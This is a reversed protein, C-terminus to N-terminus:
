LYVYYTYHELFVYYTDNTLECGSGAMSPQISIKELPVGSATLIKLIEIIIRDVVVCKIEVMKLHSSPKPLKHSEETHIEFEHVQLNFM